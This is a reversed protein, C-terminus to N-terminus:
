IHILSLNDEEIVEEPEIEEYKAKEVRSPIEMEKTVDIETDVTKDLLNDLEELSDEKEMEKTIDGVNDELLDDYFKESPESLTKQLDEELSGFAKKRVSDVDLKVAKKEIIEDRTVVDEKKYNKDLIGYVPSIVPSPKFAKKPTEKISKVIRTSTYEKKYPKDYSDLTRRRKDIDRDYRKVPEEKKKPAFDEFEEEDFAPFDFTKEAKFLERDTEEEFNYNDKKVTEKTVKPFEMTNKSVPKVKPEEITEEVEEEEFLVNKLKNLLGM